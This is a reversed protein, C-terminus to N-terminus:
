KKFNPNKYLKCHCYEMSNSKMAERWEKCCCVTSENRILTCPCYPAGHKSTALALSQLILEVVKTNTNLECGISEARKIAAQKLVDLVDEACVNNESVKKKVEEYTMSFEHLPEKNHRASSIMDKTRGIIDGIKEKIEKNILFLIVDNDDADELLLENENVSYICLKNNPQELIQIM